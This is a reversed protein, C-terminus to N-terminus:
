ETIKFTLHKHGLYSTFAPVCLGAFHALSEGMSVGLWENLWFVSLGVSICWTQILALANILCFYGIERKLGQKSGKFILLRFIFFAYVMGTVYAAIVATGFDMYESYFFRSSFNILAASGGTVLFILFEKSLFQKMM